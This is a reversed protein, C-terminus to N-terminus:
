NEPNSPYGYKKREFLWNKGRKTVIFLNDYERDALDGAIDKRGTLANVIDDVTNSHGVILVNGKLEKLRGIFKETSDKHSSYISIPIGSQESLPQATSQARITNTSFIHVIKADKLEDRLVIARVKGPESLPPNSAMMGVTDKMIVAKEAHRVIYYKGSSCASLGLIMSILVYKMMHLSNNLLKFNFWCQM